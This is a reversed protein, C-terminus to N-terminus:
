TKYLEEDYLSQWSSEQRHKTFVEEDYLSQWSSEQRHKTFVEEYLSQLSKRM